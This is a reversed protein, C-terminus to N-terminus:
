TSFHALVDEESMRELEDTVVMRGNLGKLPSNIIVM